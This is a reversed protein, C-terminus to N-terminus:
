RGIAVPDLALIRRARHALYASMALVGSLMGLAAGEAGWVPVLAATLLTSLVFSVVLGRLTEAEHRLMNLLVGGLGFFARATKTVALIVLASWAAVFEPGFVSDLLWHGALVFVVLGAAAVATGARATLTLLRQLQAREGAANLRAFRPAAVLTAITVGLGLLGAGRQAIRLLGVNEANSMAGVIVLLVHTEAVRLGNSVGLRLVAMGWPRWPVPMAAHRWTPAFQRWFGIGVFGLAVAIAAIQLTVARAPTLWGPALQTAAVLGLAFAAPRVLKQAANGLVVHQAGSLAASFTNCLANLPILALALPLIGREAGAPWPLLRWGLVFILPLVLASLALIGAVAFVVVARAVGGTGRLDHAIERTVLAPLGFEVPLGALAALALALVYLGLGEAGLERALLVASVLGFTIEAMSLAGIGAGSLVLPRRAAAAVGAGLRALYGAPRSVLPARGGPPTGRDDGARVRSGDAEDQRLDSDGRARHKSSRGRRRFLCDGRRGAATAM